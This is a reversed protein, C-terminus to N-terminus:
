ATATKSKKAEALRAAMEQRKTDREYSLRQQEEAELAREVEVRALEAQVAEEEEVDANEAQTKAVVAKARNHASNVHSGMETFKTFPQGCEKCFWLRQVPDSCSARDFEFIWKGRPTKLWFLQRDFKFVGDYRTVTGENVNFEVVDNPMYQVCNRSDMCHTNCKAKFIIQRDAM